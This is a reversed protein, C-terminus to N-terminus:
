YKLLYGNPNWTVGFGCKTNDITFDNHNRFYEAVAEMPGPNPGTELGHHCITDEIIMYQGSTVLGGYLCMVSLTNEYTHSSDKIVMVRDDPRIMDSVRGVVSAADGQILSVRSSSRVLDSIRGHDIDVGIFRTSQNAARCIDDLYLMTGGCWNGIEVVVTPKKHFLIESYVWMDLPCKKVEVGRYTTCTMIRDQMVPLTDRLTRDLFM